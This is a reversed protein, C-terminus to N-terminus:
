GDPQRRAEAQLRGIFEDIEARIFRASRGIRIRTLQQENALRWM